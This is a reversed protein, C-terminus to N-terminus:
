GRGPNASAIMIAQQGIPIGLYLDLPVGICETIRGRKRSRVIQPEGEAKVIIQVNLIEFLKRWDSDPLRNFVVNKIIRSKIEAISEIVEKERGIQALEDLIQNKRNQIGLREARYKNKNIPYVEPDIDGLHYRDELMAESRVSRNYRVELQGLEEKLGQATKLKHSESSILEYFQDEKQFLITGIAGKVWKEVDPGNIYANKCGGVPCTYKYSKHHPQGHYRRPEGAKGRHTECFIMGRLLYDRKANRQALKQHRALQDLIKARQDWTIPPDVIKIEPIYHAQELPLKRVSSNGYSNTKRMKPETAVKKLAFYRGAYAPNHVINSLATKNWEIQGSPSPIGRKKLEDLVIKYSAGEVLMSFILKITSHDDNPILYNKAKDWYYGFLKHYTVPRKSLIARDRLGDKSGQRARIVQREKGIALALEVIQGEPSDLVAPGQCIILEVNAEKLESLFVLRQLGKAELRDRDYIALAEIERNKIMQRLEQFQPCSYLDLSTWDVQFTQIISYGGAELKEKCRTVQSHLSTEAQSTTSVRAWIAAPKIVSATQPLINTDLFNNM